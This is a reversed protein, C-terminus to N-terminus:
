AKQTNWRMSFYNLAQDYDGMESYATGINTISAGIGLQDNNKQRITLAKQHYEIAKQYNKSDTELVGLNNLANAESAENGLELYQQQAKLYNERAHDYDQQYYLNNRYELYM